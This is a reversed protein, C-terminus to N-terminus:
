QTQQIGELAWHRAEEPRGAALLADILKGYEGTRPAEAELLPLVEAQQGSRELAEVLWGVLRGRGYQASFDDGRPAARDALRRHLEEAVTSCAAQPWDHDLMDYATHCLDYEDRLSVGLSFLLQQANSRSSPALAGFAIDLGE